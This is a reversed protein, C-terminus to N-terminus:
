TYNERIYRIYESLERETYEDRKYIRNKESGEFNVVILIDSNMNRISYVYATMQSPLDDTYVTPEVVIEKIFGNLYEDSITTTDRNYTKGNVSISKFDQAIMREYASNNTTTTYTEYDSTAVYTTTNYYQTTATPTAYYTETATAYHTVTTNVYTTTNYYTTSTEWSTTTDYVSTEPAVIEESYTTTAPSTRETTKVTTTTRRASSSTAATTTVNTRNTATTRSTTRSTVATTASTRQAAATQSSSKGTTTVVSSTNQTVSTQSSPKSATSAATTTQHASTTQSSANGTTSPAATTEASTTETEVIIGPQSPVPKRPPRLAFTTLGIGIIAAAGAGIAISRFIMTRRRKKELYDDYKKLINNAMEEYSRM